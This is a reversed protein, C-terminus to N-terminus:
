APPPQGQLRAIEAQLERNRAEAADARAMEADARAKAEAAKRAIEQFDGIEDGTEGDFCRIRQGDVGLWLNLDSLWLRGDDDLSLPVYRKPRRQYARISWPDGEVERDLIVYVPVNAQHYQKFKDEVDNKRYRPTVLEVILRPRTGQEAVNFSSWWPRQQRIGFIVAIDPAHHGLEEIDWYVGTNSLVLATPDMRIRLRFVDRLYSRQLDHLSDELFQDGEQPHLHDHLTLAVQRSCGRGPDPEYRFGYYFPDEATLPSPTSRPSSVASM